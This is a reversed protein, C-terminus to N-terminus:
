PSPRAQGLLRIAQRAGAPTIEQTQTCLESILIRTGMPVVGKWIDPFDIEKDGLNLRVDPTVARARAFVLYETDPQFGIGECDGEPQADYVIIELPKPGKWVRTVSFHVEFRRRGNATKLLEKKEVVKGAFVVTSLRAAERVSPAICDCALVPGIGLIGTIVLRM